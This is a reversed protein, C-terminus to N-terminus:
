QDVFYKYNIYISLKSLGCLESATNKNWIMDLLGELDLIQNIGFSPSKIQIVIIYHIDMGLRLIFVIIIILSILLLWFVNSATTGTGFGGSSLDSIAIM